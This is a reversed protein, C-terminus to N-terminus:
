HAPVLLREMRQTEQEIVQRTYDEGHDLLRTLYVILVLLAALSKIPFAAFYTQLQPAFIGMLSFVMDVLLVIALMPAAFLLAKTLFEGFRQATVDMALMRLDPMLELVPWAEFSFLLLGYLAALAGSMALMVLLAQLLAAGLVSDGATSFPTVQQGANAGRQNDTLAGVAEIAWFPTALMLGLMLGLVCEKLVLPPLAIAQSSQLKWYVGLSVPAGLGLAIGVKLLRPFVRSPFIPLVALCVFLRPLGLTAAKIAADAFEILGSSQVISM